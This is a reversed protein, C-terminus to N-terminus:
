GGSSSQPVLGGFGGASNRRLGLSVMMAYFISRFMSPKRVTLPLTEPLTAPTSVKIEIGGQQWRFLVHALDEKERTDQILLISRIGHANLFGASPFDQPFVVWRNDFTGAVPALAPKMRRSDLVFAPPADAPINLKLLDEAGACLQHVLGQWPIAPPHGTACNFLPVPRYGKQALAIAYAIATEGALDIIIATDTQLAINLGPACPSLVGGPSSANAFLIPKAWPSWISDFPAWISFLENM